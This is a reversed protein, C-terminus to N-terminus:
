IFMLNKRLYENSINRKIIGEAILLSQPLNHISTNIIINEDGPPISMKFFMDLDEKTLPMKHHLVNESVPSDRNLLRAHLDTLKATVYILRLEAFEQIALIKLKTKNTLFMGEIIVSNNQKFCAKIQNMLIEYIVDIQTAAYMEKSDIFHEMRIIDPGLLKFGTKGALLKCLSSKGACPPGYIIIACPKSM